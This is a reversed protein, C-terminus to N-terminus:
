TQMRQSIVSFVSLFKLLLLSHGSRFISDCIYPKQAEATAATHEDGKVAEIAHPLISHQWRQPDLRHLIALTLFFIV